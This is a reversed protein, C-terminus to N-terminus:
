AAGKFEHIPVGAAKLRKRMDATGRGGPFEVAMDPRGEELMRANRMPGAARGWRSWDARFTTLAVESCVAWDAGLADAGPAGGQIVAVDRHPFLSTLFDYGLRYEASRRELEEPSLNGARVNGFDRGGYILVRM